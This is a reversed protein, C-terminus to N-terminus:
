DIIKTAQNANKRRNKIAEKILITRAWSSVDLRENEAAQSIIDKDIDSVRIAIIKGKKYTGM